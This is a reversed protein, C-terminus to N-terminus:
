RYSNETKSFFADGSQLSWNLTRMPKPSPLDRKKKMPASLKMSKLSPMIKRPKKAPEGEAADTFYVYNGDPDMVWGDQFWGLHRGEYDYILEGQLYAVAQGSFLYLHLGDESYAVPQGKFDFFYINM